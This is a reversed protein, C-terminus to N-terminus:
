PYIRNRCSECLRFLVHFLSAILGIHISICIVMHLPLSKVKIEFFCLFIFINYISCVLIHM